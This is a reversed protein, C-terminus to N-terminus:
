KRKKSRTVDQSSSSTSDDASILPGPKDIMNMINENPDILSKNYCFNFQDTMQKLSLNGRLECTFLFYENDILEPFVSFFVKHKCHYSSDNSRVDISGKLRQGKTLPAIHSHVFWPVGKIDKTSFVGPGRVDFEGRIVQGFGDEPISGWYQDSKEIARNDVSTRALATSIHFDTVDISRSLLHVTYPAYSRIYEMLGRRFIMAVRADSTGLKFTMINTEENLLIDSVISSIDSFSM